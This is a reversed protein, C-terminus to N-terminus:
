KFISMRAPNFTQACNSFQYKQLVAGIQSNDGLFDPIGGRLAAPNLIRYDGNAADAFQPNINLGNEGAYLTDLVSNDNICYACGYGSYVISGSGNKYMAPISKAAPIFINNYEILGGAYSSHGYGLCYSTQNYMTNNFVINQYYFAGIGYTGGIFLSNCGVSRYM